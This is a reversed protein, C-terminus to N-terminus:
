PLYGGETNLLSDREDFLRGFVTEFSGTLALKISHEQDDGFAAPIAADRRQYQYQFGVEVTTGIAHFVNAAISWQDLEVKTYRRYGAIV